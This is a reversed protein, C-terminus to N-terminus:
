GNEIGGMEDMGAFQEATPMGCLRGVIERAEDGRGSALMDFIVRMTAHQEAHLRAIEDHAARQLALSPAQERLAQMLEM